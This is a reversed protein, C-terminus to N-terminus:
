SKQAVIFDVYKVDLPHAHSHSNSSGVSGTNTNIPGVAIGSGIVCNQGTTASNYTHSHSALEDITLVHGETHAGSAFAINFSLTGGYGGGSSNLVRIAAGNFLPNTELFWGAPPSVNNFSLRTGPPFGPGSPLQSLTVLGPTTATASRFNTYWEPSFIPSGSVSCGLTFELSETVNLNDVTLAPYYTPIDVGAFPNGIDTISILAGTSLDTLGAATVFYGEQNFGTSYVRGGLENTFYYTFQNQPSLDGQYRPLAKTYNLFGAWEWAHGFMRLVSPRRFEIPWNSLLNASGDPIYGKMDVNSAPNLERDATASPLLLDTAEVDTFGIGVLFQYVGRYDTATTYQDIVKADTSWCTTLDYGCNATPQNGDTDSDFYIIPAVNIFFDYANYDSAMHVYSQSWKEPDFTTDSNKVVCTFHKNEHKVTEGSRYYNGSTWTNNPNARELIIQAKRVGCGCGGMEGIPIPGSKNVIVMDSDPLLDVIGGSSGLTTQIVYDRLPTRTNNDTNTINISYRRQVLSRNDLLRRIYVKSGELSPSGGVGPFDGMQNRMPITIQIDSPSISSWAASSLPARWDFGNPNEIWLYSGDTFTYNRSALVQPIGPYMESDILPQNLTIVIADDAVGGNVVGLSIDNIVTTQDTMNTSLNITAVNWSSDQPFAETKYGEALAACGGFSSNSNTISIEGGSKVWHHVGQGIAFVSVEQIFAENIARIHFNRKTPDMRVNNPDLAIYADYSAITNTWTKPGSNYRQWCSLDRQLSVGTFQATVISKFGTVDNGDANIGCLGYVSRVSCNFIYPSAGLIGDTDQGPTGFPQPAVIETEGPNVPVDPYSQAFITQVKAYYDELDAESVFSFCDLLHHSESLGVKDKFTFNFFFGGGTIRLISGRDTDFDGTKPPVYSPRIVTKRLDEGIVSVGRPLIVGPHDVSNMARLQANSPVTNNTWASVSASGIANDIEFGGSACKIVFRDFLQADQGSGNQIRAVELAARQLTKFPKQATYGAQTMQNTVVPNALPDYIGTVYIDSGTQSNVYLTYTGTLLTKDLNTPGYSAQVWTGGLSIFLNDNASNWYLGGEPANMLGTGITPPTESVPLAAKLSVAGIGEEILGFGPVRGWSLIGASDVILQGKNVPAAPWFYSNYANPNNTRIVGTATTSNLSITGDLAINVGAGPKVGQVQGPLVPGQGSDGM